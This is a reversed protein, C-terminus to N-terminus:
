RNTCTFTRSIYIRNLVQKVNGTRRRISRSLSLVNFHNGGDVVRLPGRCALHSVLQLMNKQRARPLELVAFRSQSLAQLVKDM